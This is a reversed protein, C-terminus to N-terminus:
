GAQAPVIVNKMEFGGDYRTLNDLFIKLMSATYDLPDSSVHPTIILRPCDWLSSDPSLPEPEFVDLIAGGLKGERLMQELADYDVLPERSTNIVGGQAPLLELQERGILGRTEPTLSACVVLYDSGTLAANIDGTSYMEHVYPHTDEASRRVGRVRMGLEQARKAASGGISGIGVITVTKGTIVTSYRSNWSRAAQAELHMPFLSNLMLLGTAIFEGARDAHVGSSNTLAAHAPLWDLPELHDVGAGIVHVWKLNQAQAIAEKSFSWGVLVDAQAIQDLDGIPGDSCSFRVKQALEPQEAIAAQFDAEMVHFQDRDLSPDNIAHINIM